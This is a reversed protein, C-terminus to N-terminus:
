LGRHDIPVVGQVLSSFKNSFGLNKTQL